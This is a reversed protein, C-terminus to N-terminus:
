ADRKETTLCSGDDPNLVEARPLYKALEAELEAIRKEKSQCRKCPIEVRTTIEDCNGSPHPLSHTRPDLM